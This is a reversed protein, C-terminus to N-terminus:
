PVLQMYIRARLHVGKMTTGVTTARDHERGESLSPVLRAVEEELFRQAKALRARQEDDVDGLRCLVERISRGGEYRRGEVWEGDHDFDKPELREEEDPPRPAVEVEDQAVGDAERQTGGLGEVGTQEQDEAPQKDVPTVGGGDPPDIDGTAGRVPAVEQKATNKAKERGGTCGPAAKEGTAARGTTVGTAKGQAAKGSAKGSAKGQGAKGKADKGNGGGRDRAVVVNLSPACPLAFPNGTGFELGFAEKLPTLGTALFGVDTTMEVAYNKGRVHFPEPKVLTM